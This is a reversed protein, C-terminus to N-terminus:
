DVGGAAAQNAALKAIEAPTLPPLVDLAFEKVWRQIVQEQGKSNKTVKIDLFRRKLMAKYLIYPVHYGNDTQEGYPIFKRVVGMVDNGVAFIEGPLDKKKPDMNTIRLRILKLNEDRMARRKEDATMAKTVPTTNTLEPSVTSAVGEKPEEENVKAAIKAKLVEPDKLNPSFSIGMLKARAKLMDLETVIPAGTEDVQTESSNNEESGTANEPTLVSM